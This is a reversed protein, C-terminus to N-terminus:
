SSCIILITEAFNLNMNLGLVLFYYSIMDLLLAGLSIMTYPILQKFHILDYMTDTSEIVNPIIKSIYKRKSLSNLVSLLFSKKHIILVIALTLVLPIVIIIKNINSFFVAISSLIGITLIDYFREVFVTPVTKSYSASYRKKLFVSRVSEGIRAPTALLALGSFYILFSEKWSREGVLRRLWLHWRISRIIYSLFSFLFSFILYTWKFNTLGKQLLEINGSLIIAIYLPM